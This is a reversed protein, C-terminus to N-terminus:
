RAATSFPGRRGVRGGLRGPLVMPAPPSLKRTRFTDPHVGEAIAVSRKSITQAARMSRRAPATLGRELFAMVLALM